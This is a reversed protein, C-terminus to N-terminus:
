VGPHTAQPIERILHQRGLCLEQFPRHAFVWATATLLPYTESLLGANRSKSTCKELNNELYYKFIYIHSVPREPRRLPGTTNRKRPLQAVSHSPYGILHGCYSDTNGQM